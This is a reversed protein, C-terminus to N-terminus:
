IGICCCEMAHIWVICERLVQFGRRIVMSGEELLHCSPSAESGELDSSSDEGSVRFGLVFVIRRPLMGTYVCRVVYVPLLLLLLIDWALREGRARFLRVKALRVACLWAGELVV